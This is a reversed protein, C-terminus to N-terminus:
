VGHLWRTQNGFSLIPRYDHSPAADLVEDTANDLMRYGMDTRVILVAHDANRVLDRAITLMMDDHPVGAAALLQMKVLAIDECDGRGAKLTKRAGAWFDSRGYQVSDETYKIRQNAWRNVATLADERSAPLAGIHRKLQTASLTESRVRKWDRDFTTNGIRVRKSALFNEPDFSLTSLASRAGSTPATRLAALGNCASPPASADIGPSLTATPLSAEAIQVGNGAPVAAVAAQQVRIADLASPAGGLVAASKTIPSAPALAPSLPRADMVCGSVADIVAPLAIAHVSANAPSAFTGLALASAGAAIRSVLSLSLHGKDM